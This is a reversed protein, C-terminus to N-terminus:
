WRKKASIVRDIEANKKAADEDSQAEDLERLLLLALDRTDELGKRVIQQEEESVEVATPDMPKNAKFSVWRGSDDVIGYITPM